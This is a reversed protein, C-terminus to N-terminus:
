RSFAALGSLSLLSIKVDDGHTYRKSKRPSFLRFCPIRAHRGPRRSEVPIHRSAPACGTDSNLKPQVSTNKLSSDDTVVLYGCTVHKEWYFRRGSKPFFLKDAESRKDGASYVDGFAEAAQIVEYCSANPAFLGWSYALSHIIIM